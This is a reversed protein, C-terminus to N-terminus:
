KYTHKEVFKEVLASKKPVFVSYHGQKRGYYKYISERNMKLNLQQGSIELDKTNSYTDQERKIFFKKQVLFKESTQSDRVNNKRCNHM